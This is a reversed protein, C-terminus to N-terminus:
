RGAVGRRVARLSGASRHFTVQDSLTKQGLIRALTARVTPEDDDFDGHHRAASASESGPLFSNPAKVWDLRKAKILESVGPDKEVFRAMGLLPVGERAPPSGSRAELANSVLYLLSKHYINACHDDQEVSDTLTFLTFDEIRMRTILPAYSETFLEM